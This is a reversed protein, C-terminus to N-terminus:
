KKIMEKIFDEHKEDRNSYAQVMFLQGIKEDVTMTKMVSDVWQEQAYYDDTRLPDLSQSFGTISIFFLALYLFKKMSLNLDFIVGSITQALKARCSSGM